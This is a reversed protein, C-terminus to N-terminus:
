FAPFPASLGTGLRAAAQATESMDHLSQTQKTFSRLLAVTEMGGTTHKNRKNLQQRKLQNKRISNFKNHEKQSQM